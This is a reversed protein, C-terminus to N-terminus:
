TASAGTSRRARTTGGRGGKETTKVSQSDIIAASPSPKRGDQIRVQRRLADHIEQLLGSRRWLRYYHHVTSWPGFERPLMRWQCGGRAFYMLGNVIKRKDVPPRGGKRTGSKDPPIHPKILAWQEDTLDTPYRAGDM